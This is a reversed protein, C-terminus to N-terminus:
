SVTEMTMRNNRDYFYECRIDGEKRKRRLAV